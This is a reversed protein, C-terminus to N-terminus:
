MFIDEIDLKANSYESVMNKRLYIYKELFYNMEGLNLAIIHM